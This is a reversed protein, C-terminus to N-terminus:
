ALSTLSQSCASVYDGDIPCVTVWCASVRGGAPCVPRGARSCRVATHWWPGSIWQEFTGKPRSTCFPPLYPADCVCVAEITSTSNDGKRVLACDGHTGCNLAQLAPCPLPVHLTGASRRRSPCGACTACGVSRVCPTFLQGDYLLSSNTNAQGGIIALTDCLDSQPVPSHTHSLTRPLTSLRVPISM